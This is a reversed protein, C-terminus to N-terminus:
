LSLNKDSNMRTVNNYITRNVTDLFKKPDTESNELLTRIATQVMIMLVGSELGHGTVDGIGIKVRGHSQLVDYYDGGVEDAPEMFGAIDLEPIQHLEEEKPLIMRQLRRTIELEAAMRMNEAKLRENLLTIEQNAAALQATREIVKQELTRYLLANEISIAAQASLIRVVELRDATFAANAINNELYLIGTLKGQNLIPACLVSKPQNATIYSDTTFIGESSADNLVVNEQTRAVYNIIAAPLLGSDLAPISQLVEAPNDAHLAAEITLKGSDSLILFGKQAGANELVLNILKALLKDLVIEGAIAQSAKVVTALDLTEGSGSGTTSITASKTASSAPALFQPYREELDKVKAVAGWQQYAYHADQLYHRAIRNQGRALYFRGALECALAEENLYENEQALAIASDYHERAEAYNGLVRAREAEVLHFKHACNMPAHKAWTEMKAQNAAVKELIRERESEPADPFVALRILSNYLNYPPAYLSTELQIFYEEAIELYESAQRVEQFLYFLIKSNFYLNFLSGRDRAAIHLPLMKYDRYVEGMLRCRNESRGLLNLVAQWYILHYHLITEQGLKALAKGYKAMERELENLEKGALYSTISYTASGNAAFELDGAALGSQYSELFLPVIDRLREKWHTVFASVMFYTRAKLKKANLRELVQLALQGFLYGTDIDGGGCLILGYMAYAYASDAANGYEVSLNVQKGILLPILENMAVFAPLCLKTLIRMAALKARETMAPLEILDRPEKGALVSQTEQLAQMIDALTPKEPFILDLLKLFELGTQLSLLLKSQASYALIKAEYVAVKDLPTLARELVLAGLREMEEFDGCLYAAEAAEEYLALTLDYQTQWSNEGLLGIGLQLYSLASQYAASAKAKKGAQLNLRGLEDRETQEGILARGQNLQNVIDFIKLELEEAPTNQLLLQGVRLHVAQKDAEPILSYVAQQIRDHAFKYEASVQDSLGEVDLEMLKYTDSLPLVFGEAIAPWLDAATERPAKESVVALRDLDFQNGACAALKLVAQTEPPLKQVKAAMLEVVNDTIQRSQIQRLDWQWSNRQYDFAILQEAYLSKLFETVFFPNGGTKARVLEALPQAPAPQCHLLDAILETIHRTALPFLSIQNVTAGAKKIEEIALMLPHADSVENDRYAGILSLGPEAAAMLLQILKLSAGDAWQLDDLFVVLPHQPQTFVKIFNQFVLNFRNQAEAAGLEPVSPQPGIILEVEPIVEVIVQGNAGLAAQLKERWRAIQAETETLLQQALSRFAQILSAYPINRQFQDFKGSIFYGRQKTLPKYVEQVLASKGIGSYGSVLIMESAGSSVREIAAMLTAVEKERGYLKQPIQFRDSIDHRGLRFPDIQNKAQWQRLCEELDAVLGRASQYRDEANKAMLKLVIESVTQPIDPKLDHPPAPVKAIHCHVLELADDTAFPLQGTLLEYFTVGLSYFDTRYDIARNMRGTQEPSIYALTGELLNPNGFTPNERSLVTSIGFDIVKVQQTAPNFLINSSNIDKHIIYRQHIQGLISAIEIALPLFGTLTLSGALNLKALSEGGFDELVMVPRNSDSEWSYADVVGALNLSRTVEYERRFQAVIEPPPYAQKLMKLVLPQGDTPRMARFVLSSASEHLQQTIQCGSITIM